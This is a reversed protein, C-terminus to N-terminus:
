SVCDVVFAALRDLGRGHRGLVEVRILREGRRRVFLAAERDDAEPRRGPPERCLRRAVEGFLSRHRDTDSRRIRRDPERQLGGAGPEDAQMQRLTEPVDASFRALCAQHAVIQSAPASLGATGWIHDWDAHSNVVLVQRGALQDQVMQMMIQTDEPCLLTDFVLLYNRTIVIYADVEM